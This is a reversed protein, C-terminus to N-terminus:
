RSCQWIRKIGRKFHQTLIRRYEEPIYGIGTTIVFMQKLKHLLRFTNTLHEFLAYDVNLKIEVDPNTINLTYLVLQVSPTKLLLVNLMCTHLIFYKYYDYTFSSKNVTYM